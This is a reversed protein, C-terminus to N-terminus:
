WVLCLLVFLLVNFWSFRAAGTWNVRMMGQASRAGNDCCSREGASLLEETVPKGVYGTGASRSSFILVKVNVNLWPGLAWRTITVALLNADMSWWTLVEIVMEMDRATATFCSFLQVKHSEPSIRWGFSDVSSVWSFIWIWSQQKQM